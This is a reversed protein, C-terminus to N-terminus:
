QIHRNISILREMTAERKLRALEEKHFVSHCFNLCPDMCPNFCSHTYCYSGFTLLYGLGKGVTSREFSSTLVAVLLIFHNYVPSVPFLVTYKGDYVDNISAVFKIDTMWDEICAREDMRSDNLYLHGFPTNYTCKIVDQVDVVMCGVQCPFDDCSIDFIQVSIIVSM